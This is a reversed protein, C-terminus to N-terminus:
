LEELLLALAAVAFAQKNAARDDLGTRVDRVRQRAAPGSVAVHALGAPKSSRRGAQPGAVGTEGIGWAAGFTRRAGEAMAKAVEPSVAGAAALRDSGVGAVMEKGRNSYAVVGGAFWASSGPRDTLLDCIRGGAASEVVAVSEGRALLREAIRAVLSQPDLEPLPPNGAAPRSVGSETIVADILEGPIREMGLPVAVAGSPQDGAATPEIKASECIIEVPRDHKRASRALLLSPLGNLVSGDNLIADAGLWIVDAEPVRAPMDVDAVVEAVIGEAALANATQRGYRHGHPATSEAILLRRLKGRQGALRCAELITQSYTATFVVSDPPLRAVANEVAQKGAQESRRALEDAQGVIAARLADPDSTDGALEAVDQLLRELWVRVPAMEPRADILEQACAHVRDLLESPSGDRADGACLGVTKLAARSLWSAGHTEDARIAAIQGRVNDSLQM